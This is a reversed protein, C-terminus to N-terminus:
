NWIGGTSKFIIKVLVVGLYFAAMSGFITGVVYWSAHWYENESLFQTTEYIMSSATTLGGCFGISLLLRAEPSLVGAPASLQSFIGILFCGVLNAMLTGMPVVLSYQALAISFMYRTVSGAFGGIGVILCNRLIILM